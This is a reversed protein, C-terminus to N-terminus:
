TRNNDILILVCQPNCHFNTAKTSSSVAAFSTNYAPRAYTVHESRPMARLVLEKPSKKCSSIERKFFFISGYTLSTSSIRSPQTTTPGIAHKIAETNTFGLSIRSSSGIFCEFIPTTWLDFSLLPFQKYSSVSFLPMRIALVM